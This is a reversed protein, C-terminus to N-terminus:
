SESPFPASLLRPRGRKFNRRQLPRLLAGVERVAVVVYRVGISAFVNGWSRVGGGFVGVRHSVLELGAFHDV